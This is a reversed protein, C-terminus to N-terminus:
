RDFKEIFIPLFNSGVNARADTGLYTGVGLFHEAVVGVAVSFVLKILTKLLM